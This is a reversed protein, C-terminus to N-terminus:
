RHCEEALRLNDARRQRFAADVEIAAQLGVCAEEESSGEDSLVVTESAARSAVGMLNKKIVAMLSLHDQYQSEEQEQESSGKTWSLHNVKSESSRM